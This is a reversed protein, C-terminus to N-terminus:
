KQYIEDHFLLIYWAKQQTFWHGIVLNPFLNAFSCQELYDARLPVALLHVCLPVSIGKFYIM